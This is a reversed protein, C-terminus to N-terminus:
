RLNYWKKSNKDICKLCICHIYDGDDSYSGCLKCIFWM